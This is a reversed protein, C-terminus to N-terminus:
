TAKTRAANLRRYGELAEACGPDILLVQRFGIEAAAVHKMQILQKAAQLVMPVSMPDINGGLNKGSKTVIRTNVVRYEGTAFSYKYRENGRLFDYKTMGSAIAHRIAYAHLVLGAPLDDFSQDRGAVYFLLTKHRADAFCVLAGLPRDGQWLVPLFLSGADFCEMTATRITQQIVEAEKGKSAAWQESWFRVVIDLDRDITAADAHTIRFEDTEEVRKLFRRVKQRTNASVSTGLYDDWSDPLDAYPCITNDIVDGPNVGGVDVKDFDRDPFFGLFLRSRKRSARFYNLWLSKWGMGLLHRALAPIARGEFQPLCLFGSFDSSPKGAMEIDNWFATGTQMRTVMRMPFFAVYPADDADERVALVFWRTNDIDLRKTMWDWSLFFHAEPDADYVREWDPRMGALERFNTVIDVRM